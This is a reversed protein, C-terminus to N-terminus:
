LKFGDLLYLTFFCKIGRILMYMMMDDYKLLLNNVNKVYYLTLYFDYTNEKQDDPSDLLYILGICFKLMQVLSKKLSLNNLTTKIEAVEVSIEKELDDTTIKGGLNIELGKMESSIYNDEIKFSSIVKKYDRLSKNKFLFEKAFQDAVTIIDNKALNILTFDQTIQPRRIPTLLWGMEKLVETFANSSNIFTQEWYNFKYKIKLANRITIESILGMKEQIRAIKQSLKKRVQRIEYRLKQEVQRIENKLSVEVQGIRNGLAVTQDNLMNRLSNESIMPSIINNNCLNIQIYINQM